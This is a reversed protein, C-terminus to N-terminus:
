CPPLAFGIKTASHIANVLAQFQIKTIKHLAGEFGQKGLIAALKSKDIDHGYPSLEQIRSDFKFRWIGKANAPDERYRCARAYGYLHVPQTQGPKFGDLVVLIDNARISAFAHLFRAYRGAQSTSYDHTAQLNKSIDELTSSKPSVTLGPWGIAVVQEKVFTNWYNVRNSGPMEDRVKIAWYGTHVEM